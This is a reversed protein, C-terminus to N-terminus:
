SSEFRNTEWDRDPANISVKISKGDSDQISFDSSQACIQFTRALGEPSGIRNSLEKIARWYCRDALKEGWRSVPLPEEGSAARLANNLSEINILFGTDGIFNPIEEPPKDNWKTVWGNETSELSFKFSIQEPTNALREPLRCKAELSVPGLCSKVVEDGLVLKKFKSIRKWSESPYLFYNPYMRGVDGAIWEPAPTFSVYKNM